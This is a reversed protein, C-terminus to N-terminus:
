IRNSKSSILQQADYLFRIISVARVPGIDSRLIHLTKARAIAHITPNNVLSGNNEKLLQGIENLYNTLQGNFYHEREDEYQERNIERSMNRELDAIYRDNDRQQRALDKDQERAMLSLNLDQFRQERAIAQDEQRQKEADQRQQLTIVITFVILILPLLLNSIIIMFKKLTLQCCRRCRANATVTNKETKM